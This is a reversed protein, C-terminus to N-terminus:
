KYYIHRPVRTWRRFGCTSHSGSDMTEIIRGAIVKGLGRRKIAISNRCKTLSCFATAPATSQFLTPGPVTEQLLFAQTLHKHEEALGM